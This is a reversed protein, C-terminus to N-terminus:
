VIKGFEAILYNVFASCSVLMFKAEEFTVDSVFLGDAHRIGGEDNTYSYLKTLSDKLQKKLGRKKEMIAIADGLSAHEKGTIIKCISEVASISEKISNKYDPNERDSLYQLSKNLHLRCGEFQCQCAEEVASLEIDNTIPTIMGNIFRYGVYEREFLDNFCKNLTTDKGDIFLKNDFYNDNLWKTIFWLLDFVINYNSSSLVGDIEEDFVERWDYVEGANPRVKEGFFESLVAECFQQRASYYCSYLYKDRNYSFEYDLVKYLLNGLVIRTKNDLTKVQMDKKSPEIGYTDSFGGRISAM